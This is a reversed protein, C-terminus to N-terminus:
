WVSQHTCSNHCRFTGISHCNCTYLMIKITIDYEIGKKSDKLHVFGLEMDAAGCDNLAGKVESIMFPSCLVTVTYNTKGVTTNMAKISRVYM